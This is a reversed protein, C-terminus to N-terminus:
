LFLDRVRQHHSELPNWPGSNSLTTNMKKDISRVPQDAELPGSLLYGVKSKMATPGNGRLVQDEVFKQDARVLLSIEFNEDSTIPLALQLGKLHPIKNVNHRSHRQPPTAIKEVILM